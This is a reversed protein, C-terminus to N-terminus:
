KEGFKYSLYNGYHFQISEAVSYFKCQLLDKVKKGNYYQHDSIFEINEKTLYRANGYVLGLIKRAPKILKMFKKPCVIPKGLGIIKRIQTAFDKYLINESSICFREGFINNEMLYVATKAVDRVDVCSTGGPFTFKSKVFLNFMQDNEEGWKGSGIIMGPNIIVTDLGEKYANWVMKESIYKSVVYASYRNKSANNNKIQLEIKKKNVKLVAASSVYLFKKISMYMCASLLKRTMLIGTELVQEGDKPDFSIKAACHYIEDVDKLSNYLSNQHNFDVDVWEIKNFYFDAKPTYFHYSQRVDSLNSGPRKCARVKKGRKVLELAIVRGLLGTAGTVLIMRKNKFQLGTSSLWQDDRLNSCDDTM